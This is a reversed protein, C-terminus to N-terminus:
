LATFDGPKDEGTLMILNVAVAAPICDTLGKELIVYIPKSKIPNIPNFEGM